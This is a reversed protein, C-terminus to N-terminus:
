RIKGEMIRKQTNKDPIEGLNHRIIYMMVVDPLMRLEQRVEDSLEVRSGEVTKEELEKKQERDQQKNWIEWAFKAGQLRVRIDQSEDIADTLVKLFMEPSIPGVENEMRAVIAERIKTKQMSRWSYTEPRISGCRRAAENACGTKCFYAVFRYQMPTLDTGPVRGKPPM